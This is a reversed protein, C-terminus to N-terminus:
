SPFWKKKLDIQVKGSRGLGLLTPPTLPHQYQDTDSILLTGTQEPARPIPTPTSRLLPNRIQQIDFPKSSGLKGFGTLNAEPVSFRRTGFCVELPGPRIRKGWVHSEPAYPTRVLKKPSHGWLRYGLSEGM